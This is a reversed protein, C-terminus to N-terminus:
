AAVETLPDDDYIGVYWNADRVISPMHRKVLKITDKLDRISYGESGSEDSLSMSVVGLGILDDIEYADYDPGQSLCEAVVGALSIRIQQYQSTKNTHWTCGDWLIYGGDLIAAVPSIRWHACHGFHRAVVTHGAEHICLERLLTLNYAALESGSKLSEYENQVEIVNTTGEAFSALSCTLSKFVASEDCSRLKASTRDAIEQLQHISLDNKPDASSVFVPFRYDSPYDERDRHGYTIALENIHTGFSQECESAISRFICEIAPTTKLPRMAQNFQIWILYKPNLAELAAATERSSENTISTFTNTSM